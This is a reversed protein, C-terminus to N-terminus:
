LSVTIKKKKDSKISFSIKEVSKRFISLYWIEYFDTCKSCLQEMHVSLCVPMTNSTTAIQLKRFLRFVCATSVLVIRNDRLRLLHPLCNLNLMTFFQLEPGLSFAFFYFM